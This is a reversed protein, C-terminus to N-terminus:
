WKPLTVHSGWCLDISGPRRIPLLRLMYAPQRAWRPGTQRLPFSGVPGPNPSAAPGTLEFSVDSDVVFSKKGSEKTVTHELTSRLAFFTKKKKSVFYKKLPLKSDGITANASNVPCPTLGPRVQNSTREPGQTVNMVLTFVM